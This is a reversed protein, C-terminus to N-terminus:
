HAHRLPSLFAGTDRALPTMHSCEVVAPENGALFGGLEAAAQHARRKTGPEIQDFFLLRMQSAPKRLYDWVGVAHGRALIVSTVNGGRDVVYPLHEADIFRSRDAHSQLYPDLVPLLSLADATASAGRAVELDAAHILFTGRLGRIEVLSLNPLSAVAARITARSLGTWWAIDAETVPGYRRIYRAVLEPIAGQETWSNLHVAPLAESFRRYAPQASRWGGRGKWRVLRSEDCLATVVPSLRQDVALAASLERVTMARGSVATEIRGALAEYRDPTLGNVELYRDTRVALQETAALVLPILEASELFLTRRMCGVRAVRGHDLLSELGTPTFDPLRARLQIYPSLPVTAHLGLLDDIVSLITDGGNNAATVHQRRLAWGVVSERNIRPTTM